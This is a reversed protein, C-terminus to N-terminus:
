RSKPPAVEARAHRRWGLAFWAWTAAELGAVVGFALSYAGPVDLGLRTRAAEVALGVGWQTAFSGAFMCLNLATNARATLERPFGENLVTFALVNAANGLGYLSWWVVSGPLRLVVAALALGALGFGAGVLHRPHVGRAALRVSFLGLAVYGGLVTLGMVLLQRAAGARDLGEVGMLWPVAWLGQVAMFSGMGFGALPALWWFRPSSFVARVGAWQAGVTAAAAPAPLDPVRRWVWVAAALTAAALGLFVGRWSTARLALELPATASLAGLAGATMIWGGLAAQREPPYWAAIAKMPAMLCVAVGLGILGRALLLGLEGQALGFGLAGLAALALLVPEVRRPGLRDLLMGAPLQMAAFSLFYASTLLGLGAPQLGLERSLEPSIVANVNRYLYSLLYGAAFPLYIRGFRPAEPPIPAAGRGAM